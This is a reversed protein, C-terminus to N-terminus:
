GDEEVAADGGGGGGPNQVFQLNYSGTAPDQEAKFNDLSLGFRGLLSNGFGKLTEARWPHAWACLAACRPLV